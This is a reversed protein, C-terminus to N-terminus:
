QWYDIGFKDVNNRDILEIPCKINREIKEGALYKYAAEAAMRGLTKPSQAATATIKGEKVMKKADPSGDVGYVLIKGNMRGAAELAAIAGLATPDNLAMVVDIEKNARIINEMVPMAQELQGNSSQKAVIKYNPFDRIVAEFSRTRDISTKATPHELIVVNGSRIKRMMDQACLVGAGWNDSSVTSLVLNGDYVPSDIVIVPIGAKRAAQLAPKIGKWDVPNLFILDVKQALLDYVGAIQKNLDLAPDLAILKDGRDEITKKLGENLAIFFPNNMTMYIVGFKYTKKFADSATRGASEKGVLANLERNLRALTDEPNKEGNIIQYIEKDATNMADEYKHFRPTVISQEIVESLIKTDVSVREEPNYRSLETDAEKSETIDRLVPVGHSYRFVNMQATRNSTLFKLFKWAEQEHRTRSSIGMLFSYLESANNGHPGRPLKICEWEFQAYRIVRYPYSKYARYWSFPFPRFAVKGRDFDDPLVKFNQNLKNLEVVFKIAELVGPEDFQAERGNPDFLRQGNTYVAHQWTFGVVGYQDIKGDGDKDRTVRKCIHYLDDWTWDNRPIEIGEARLLTKNVFMLVPELERPLAYQTGMFQGSKIGNIYMKRIEFEEDNEIQNDLNKLIGISAFTNFDGPLVCFVDPEAGIAIQQALWESYDNKLTGYRYRVKIKPNIKQFDEIAEDVIKYSQWNPVNYISGSFVGLTLVVPGTFNKYVFYGTVAAGILFVGLIIAVVKGRKM